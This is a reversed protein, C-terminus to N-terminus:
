LVFASQIFTADNQQIMHRKRSRFGSLFNFFSPLQHCAIFGSLFLGFLGCVFSEPIAMIVHLLALRMSCREKSLSNKTTRDNPGDLRRRVNLCFSKTIEGSYLKDRRPVLLFHGRFLDLQGLIIMSM